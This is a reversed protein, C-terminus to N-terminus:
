FSITSANNIQITWGKRLKEKYHLVKLIYIKKNTSAKETEIKEM